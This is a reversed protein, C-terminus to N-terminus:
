PRDCSETLDNYVQGRPCTHTQQMPAAPTTTGPVLARAPGSGGGAPAPASAPASQQQQQQQMESYLSNLEADYVSDDEPGSGSTGNYIGPAAQHSAAVAAAAAGMGLGMGLGYGGWGWGRGSWGGGRWGDVNRWRGGGGHWGGGGGHWGGGGGGGRFGGGGGGGGRADAPVPGGVIMGGALALVVGALLFRKM